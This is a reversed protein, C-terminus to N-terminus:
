RKSKSHRNYKSSQLPLTSRPSLSGAEGPSQAQIRLRGRGKENQESVEAVDILIQGLFEVFVGYVDDWRKQREGAYKFTSYKLHKPRGGSEVPELLGQFM